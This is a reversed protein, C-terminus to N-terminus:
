LVELSTAIVLTCSTGNRFRYHFSTCFATYSLYYIYDSVIKLLIDFKTGVWQTVEINDALRAVPITTKQQVVNNVDDTRADDGVSNLSIVLIQASSANFFVYEEDITVTGTTKFDFCRSSFITVVDSSTTLLSVRAFYGDFIDHGADSAGKRAAKLPGSDGELVRIRLCGFRIISM